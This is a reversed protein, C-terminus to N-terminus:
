PNIIKENFFTINKGNGSFLIHGERDTRHIEVNEEEFRQLVEKHPYGYDNDVGCSIVAYDPAVAELFVSSSSSNSGHHGVILVDSAIDCNAVMYQECNWEGDGYVLIRNEGGAILVGLSSENLNEVDTQWDPSPAVITFSMEGMTYVDGAKPHEVLPEKEEVAALLDAYTATECLDISIDPMIVREVSFERLLTAGSGIHDEHPHTLLLYDLSTIGQEELYAVIMKADDRNGTDIMMAHEGSVLLTASAQGVDLCHVTFLSDEASEDMLVSGAGGAADVKEKIWQPLRGDQWLIAALLLIIALITGFHSRKHIKRQMESARM